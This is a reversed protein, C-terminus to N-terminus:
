CIVTLQGPNCIVIFQGGCEVIHFGRRRVDDIFAQRGVERDIDRLARRVIGGKQVAKAQFLSDMWALPAPPAPRPIIEM